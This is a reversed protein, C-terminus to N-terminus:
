FGAPLKESLIKIGSDTILVDDEIRVGIGEEPIYIGPECTIVMGPALPQDYEGVDHTDLGLFHSTAHPYYQRVAEKTNASILGLERLKKGMYQQVQEEFEKMLVGPKLAGLGYRQVDYVADYIAQQRTTPKSIAFTRTIDAAYHSVEAGIDLVLLGHKDVPSNNAVHHITCASKGSAVIPSFAHRFGARGFVATIDAEIEYEHTYGQRHQYVSQLAQGTVDIAQQMAALELPQKVARLRTLEPRLDQLQLNDSAAKLREILRSRAPNTYIGHREVFAPLPLLTAVQKAQQLRRNLRAWGEQDYLIDSVGSTEALAALDDGGDFQRVVEDREPLILYEAGDDMVLVVDPQELGTVYWFSSDQRFPYTVDSNRQLVGQGTLVIPGAPAAAAQLQQRNHQFFEKSFQKM